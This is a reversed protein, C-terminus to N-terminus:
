RVAAIIKNAVKPNRLANLLHPVSVSHRNSAHLIGNESLVKDLKARRNLARQWGNALAATEWKRGDSTTFDTRTNQSVGSLLKAM